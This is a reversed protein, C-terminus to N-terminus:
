NGRRRRFYRMMDFGALAASVTIMTWGAGKLFETGPGGTEPLETGKYNIITYPAAASYTKTGDGDITYILQNQEDFSVEVKVPESLVKYGPAATDECLLYKGQEADITIYGSGPAPHIGTEVPADSAKDWQEDAKYLSFSTLSVNDGEAAGYLVKVIRLGARANIWQAYLVTDENLTITDNPQYPEGSGDKQTNWGTFTYGRRSFSSSDAVTASEGKNFSGGVPTTSGSSYDTCNLDYALTVKDKKLLVGDVHWYNTEISGDDKTALKVVYWLVYYEGNEGFDEESFTNKGYTTLLTQKAASGVRNLAVALAENSPTSNLNAEVEEGTPDTVFKAEKLIGQDPSFYMGSSKDHGTYDSAGAGSPENVIKGDLRIFFHVGASPNEKAWVAYMTVNENVIFSSGAPYVTITGAAIQNDSFSSATTWGAFVYGDKTLGEKGPLTVETGAAINEIAAPATGSAGNGNFTVGPKDEKFWFYAETIPDSYSASWGGTTRTLYLGYSGGSFGYYFETFPTNGEQDTTAKDFVYGPLGKVIEAAVTEVSYSGGTSVNSYIYENDEGIGTGAADVVHISLTSSGFYRQFVVTYTSFHQAEFAIETINEEGPVSMTETIRDLESVEGSAIEENRVDADTDLHMIEVSDAEKSKEAIPAGTFSVNVYGNNSWSDDLKNGAADYLTIDYALVSTVETSEAETNEQEVKEKVAEEVHSTVEQVEATTGEPLIGEEASVTVTVGNITKAYRFAPHTGPVIEELFIEVEQDELVAPIEYYVADTRFAGSSGSGSSSTDSYGADSATATVYVAESPTANSYANEPLTETIIDEAEIEELEEGNATVEIIAYGAQPVIGFAVEAGDRVLKPAKVLEASGVPDILYDIIHAEAELYEKDLGLKSFTVTFARATVTQDLAALNYTEGTLTGRRDFSVEEELEVKVDPHAVADGTYSLDAPGATSPDTVGEQTAEGIGFAAETEQNSTDGAETEESETGTETSKEPETGTEPGAEKEPESAANGGTEEETEKGTEAETEEVPEEETEVEPESETEEESESETEYEEEAAEEEDEAMEVMTDASVALLRIPKLSMSLQSGEENSSSDESADSGEESTGSDGSGGSDESSGDESAGGDGTESSGGAAGGDGTEGSEGATGGDGTEGSGGSVGEGGATGANETSGSNGGASGETESAGSDGPQNGGNEQDSGSGDPENGKEGEEPTGNFSDSTGNGDQGSSTENTEGSLTGAETGNGASGGANEGAETIGTGAGSGASGAGPGGSGANGASGRVIGDKEGFVAEYAKLTCNGSVLGNINVRGSVTEEGGNVYLFILEEEGTLAYTEPDADEAIRLFVRLDIDDAEYTRTYEPFIEYLRGDAAFLQEYKKQLNKDKCDFELPEELPQGGDLAEAAALKLEEAHICFEEKMATQGGFVDFMSNSVSGFLLSVMLLYTGIVKMRRRLPTRPKKHSIGKARRKQEM